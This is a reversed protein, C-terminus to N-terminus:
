QIIIKQTISKQEALQVLYVGPALGSVEVADQNQVPLTRVVKGNMDLILVTSNKGLGNLMIHITTNAPIPWVEMKIDTSGTGLVMRTESYTIKGDIDEQRIRYLTKRNNFRTDNFTYNTELASNGDTAKSSVFAISTYQQEGEQLKEIYFGKCNKEAALVWILEAEHETKRYANFSKWSVPLPSNILLYYPQFGQAIGGSATTRKQVTMEGFTYNLRYGAASLTKGSTAVVEKQISQAKILHIKGAILGILLIYKNM